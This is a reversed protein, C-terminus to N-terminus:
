SKVRMADTLDPVDNFPCDSCRVGACSANTCLRHMTAQTIDGATTISELERQAAPELKSYNGMEKYSMPERGRIAKDEEQLAQIEVEIEQLRTTQTM